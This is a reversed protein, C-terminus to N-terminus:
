ALEEVAVDVRAALGCMDVLATAVADQVAAGTEVLPATRRVLTADVDVVRKRRVRVGAVSEAARAAIEVLVPEPITVTGNASQHVLTM